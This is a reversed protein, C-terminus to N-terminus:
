ASILLPNVSPTLVSPILLSKLEDVVRQIQAETLGPYMPLSLIEESLREAHPFDGARYGLFKFAPQLHCPLPYHIGTQIGRQELHAQLAARDGVSCSKWAEALLRIVYLHYVHGRGVQNQLPLVGQAALPKLARQYTESASRRAQNWSALHPLKVNLVAAQITDLRSNTGLETHFYKKPAGYNRLCRIQTAIAEDSTVVMGGDGLAGLNKSPYFSFAAATGVSGAHYGEREALHAQAADEFIILDYTAALDKLLTPSVMQGYLHVPVIARTNPTIAKEAATLDMLGTQLDCDVLIPKAGSRLVGILTAVFTNAPLIVEDGSRIGCAQLGLAIADTGCGVGVGHQAGCAQAFRTEFERVSHGLVYDGQLLVNRLVAELDAQIPAHAVTLDVFPVSVPEAPPVSSVATHM